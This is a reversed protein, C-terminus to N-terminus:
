KRQQPTNLVLCGCLPRCCEWCLQVVNRLTGLYLPARRSSYSLLVYARLPSDRSSHCRNLVYMLSIENIMLLFLSLETSATPRNTTSVQRAVCSADVEEAAPKHLDKGFRSHTGIFNTFKVMIKGGHAGLSGTCAQLTSRRSPLRITCMPHKSGGGEWNLVREVTAVAM